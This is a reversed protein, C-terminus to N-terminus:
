GRASPRGRGFLLSASPCPPAPCPAPFLLSTWGPFRWLSSRYLRWCPHCCPRYPSTRLCPLPCLRLSPFSHPCPRLFLYPHLCPPGPCPPPCPVPGAPAASSRRCGVVMWCGQGAVIAQAFARGPRRRRDSSRWPCCRCLC